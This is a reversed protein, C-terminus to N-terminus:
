RGPRHLDPEQPPAAGPEGIHKAAPRLREVEEESAFRAGSVEVPLRRPRAGHIPADALRHRRRNRSQGGAAPEPHDLHSRSGPPARLRHQVGQRRPARVVEVRVDGRTEQRFRLFAEGAAVRAELVPGEVDFAVRLLLAEIEM